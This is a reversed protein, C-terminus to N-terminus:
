IFKGNVMVSKVTVDPDFVVIDADFGIELSGKGTLNLLKAPQRTMMYVAQPVTCGVKQIMTRVLRDATAVSGAFATRDLLKAIGDEVICPLGEGIRGLLSPGEPMDAGRMADTVLIMRDRGCFRWIMTLLAPPLHSGDAIVELQLDNLLYGAEVVGPIRYGDKRTITSMSSYFHTLCTAGHDAALRVQEMTADTHGICPIVGNRVLADCFKLSGPLEPAFTWKRILGDGLGLLEEYEEEKPPYIYQPPQAGAQSPALYPGEMHLGLFNPMGNVGSGKALLQYDLVTQKLTSFSSTLTTPCISTTGHRLHAAAVQKMPELGGDMFDANGGGHVHTDIFGPAVYMGCADYVSDSPLDETTIAVIKGNEIYLNKKAVSDEMVLLGNTIKLM